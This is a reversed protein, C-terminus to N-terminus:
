PAPPLEGRLVVVGDVVTGGTVPQRTVTVADYGEPDVGLWLDIEAQDARLHFTGASVKGAEGVLWAEYFVGDPAPGLGEVELVVRVGAPEDSLRATATAAPAEGTGALAVDVTETPDDGLMRVGGAVALCVAVVAAAAALVVPRRRHARLRDARRSSHRPGGLAADVPHAVDGAVGAQAGTAAALVRDRLEPAVEAWLAPDDLLRVVHRQTEGPDDTSV